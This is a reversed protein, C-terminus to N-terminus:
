IRLQKNDMFPSRLCITHWAKMIWQKDSDMLRKHM